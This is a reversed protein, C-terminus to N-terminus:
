GAPMSPARLSTVPGRSRASNTARDIISLHRAAFRLSSCHVKIYDPFRSPDRVDGSADFGSVISAETPPGSHEDTLTAGAAKMNAFM